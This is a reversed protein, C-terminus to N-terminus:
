NSLECYFLVFLFCVTASSMWSAISLRRERGVTLRTAPAGTSSATCRTRNASSTTTSGRRSMSRSSGRSSHSLRYWCASSPSVCHALSLWISNLASLLLMTHNVRGRMCEWARASSGANRRLPNTSCVASEYVYRPTSSCRDSPHCICNSRISSRVRADVSENRMERRM